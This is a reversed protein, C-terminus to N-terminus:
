QRFALAQAHRKPVTRYMSRLRELEAFDEPSVIVAVPEGHRVVTIAQERALRLM